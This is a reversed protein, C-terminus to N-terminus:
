GILALNSDFSPGFAIWWVEEGQHLTHVDAGAAVRSNTEQSANGDVGHGAPSVPVEARDLIIWPRGTPAAIVDEVHVGPRLSCGEVSGFVGLPLNWTQCTASTGDCGNGCSVPAPHRPRLTHYLSRFSYMLTVISVTLLPFTNSRIPGRPNQAPTTRATSM